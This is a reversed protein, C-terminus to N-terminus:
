NADPLESEPIPQHEAQQIELRERRIARVERAQDTPPFDASQVAGALHDIREALM